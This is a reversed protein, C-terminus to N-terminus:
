EMRMINELRSKVEAHNHVMYMNFSFIRSSSNRSNPMHCVRVVFRVDGQYTGNAATPDAVAAETSANLISIRASAKAGSTVRVRAM